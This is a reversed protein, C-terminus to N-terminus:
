METFSMSIHVPHLLKNEKYRQSCFAKIRYCFCGPRRNLFNMKFWYNGEFKSKSWEATNEDTPTSPKPDRSTDFLCIDAILVAPWASSCRAPPCSTHPPWGHASCVAPVMVRPFVDPESVASTWGAAGTLDSGSREAVALKTLAVLFTKIHRVASCCALTLLGPSVDGSDESSALFWGKTQNRDHFNPSLKLM